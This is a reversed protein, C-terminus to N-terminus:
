NIGLYRAPNTRTMLALDSDNIGENRLAAIFARLGDLHGPNGVQGLDSSLVCHEAGVARIADAFEKATVRRWKRMSELRADPGQITNQYAHEIFAGAAVAAKQQAVTMAIPDMMAHTVVIRQVGLRKADRLVLLTEEASSHGTALALNRAAITKLVELVAPVLRGNSTLAISARKEGFTRVHNAADFTPLWVVRGFGGKVNALAEVAAPNLGGASRNLAVGGIVEIHPVAQRTFWAHAATPTHHSKILLGRMGAAKAQRALEVIDIPRPSVDPDAHAHLDIVGALDNPATLRLVRNNESDSIYLAGSPHVYVGHPRNLETKLPDDPVLRGGRTGSGAIVTLGGDRPSYRRVVHNETDVVLVNGAADVNLNKPGNLGADPKVLTRISGDREVVRLANGRRELIYIRGDRDVALARPDVLPSSRAPAGDLPVGTEGNGAITNIINTRLDLARVRRNQLDCIYLINQHVVIDYLQNFLARDATGGDGAFGRETSGAVIFARKDEPELRVLRHNMTDAVYIRQDSTIALAHPQNFTLETVPAGAVAEARGSADVRIIRHGKYEAIYWNGARDFTVAFPEMLQVREAPGPLPETGCGAVCEIRGGGRVPQAASSSVAIAAGLALASMFFRWPRHERNM